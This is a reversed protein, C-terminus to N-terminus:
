YENQRDAWFARVGKLSKPDYGGYPDTNDPVSPSRPKNDQEAVVTNNSAVPAAAAGTQQSPAAAYQAMAVSAGTLLLAAGLVSRVVLSM